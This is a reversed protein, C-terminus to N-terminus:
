GDIWLTYALVKAFNLMKNIIKPEYEQYDVPKDNQLVNTEKRV